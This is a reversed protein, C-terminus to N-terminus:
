PDEQERRQQDANKGDGAELHNGALELRRYFQQHRGKVIERFGVAGAAVTEEAYISEAGTHVDKDAREKFEEANLDHRDRTM